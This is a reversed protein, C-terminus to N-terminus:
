RDPREELSNAKRLGDIILDFDMGYVWNIDSLRKKAPIPLGDEGQSTFM